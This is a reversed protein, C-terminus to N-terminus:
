VLKEIIQQLMSETNYNKVEGELVEKSFENSYKPIMDLYQGYAAGEIGINTTINELVIMMRKDLDVMSKLQEYM